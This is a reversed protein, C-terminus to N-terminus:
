LYGISKLNTQKKMVCGAHKLLLLLLVLSRLTVVFESTHEILTHFKIHISILSFNYFFLAIKHFTVSMKYHSSVCTCIYMIDTEIIGPAYMYTCFLTGTGKTIIHLDTM